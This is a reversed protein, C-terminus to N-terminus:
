PLITRFSLDHRVDDNGSPLVLRDSVADAFLKAPQPLHLRSFM